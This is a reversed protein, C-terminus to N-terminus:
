LRLRSISSSAVSFLMLQRDSRSKFGRGVSKLDPARVVRGRQRWGVVSGGGPLIQLYIFVPACFKLIFAPDTFPVVVIVLYCCQLNRINLPPPFFYFPDCTSLVRMVPIILHQIIGYGRRSYKTLKEVGEESIKSCM